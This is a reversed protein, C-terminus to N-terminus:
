THKLLKDTGTLKRMTETTHLTAGRQRFFDRGGKEEEGGFPSHNEEVLDDRRM